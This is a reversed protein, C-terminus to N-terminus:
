CFDAFFTNDKDEGEFDNLNTGRNTRPLCISFDIGLIYTLTKKGHFHFTGTFCTKPLQPSKKWPSMKHKVGLFKCKKLKKWACKQKWASKKMKKVHQFKPKLPLYKTKVPPIKCFKWPCIKKKVHVKLSIKMNKERGSKEGDTKRM